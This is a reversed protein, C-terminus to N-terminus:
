VNVESNPWLVGAPTTPELGVSGPSHSPQARTVRDQWARVLGLVQERDPDTNLPPRLSSWAQEPNGQDLAKLAGEAVEPDLGPPFPTSPNLPHRHHESNAGRFTPGSVRAGTPPGSSGPRSGGPVTLNNGDDWLELLLPRHPQHPQPHPRLM